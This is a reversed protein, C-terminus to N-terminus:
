CDSASITLFEPYQMDFKALIEHRPEALVQGIKGGSKYLSLSPPTRKDSHQNFYYKADASFTIKNLGDKKTLCPMETGDFKIRYLHHEKKFENELTGLTPDRYHWFAEIFLERERDIELQLFVDKELPTIIYFVEEKLWKTFRPPLEKVSKKEPLGQFPFLLYIIILLILVKRMIM